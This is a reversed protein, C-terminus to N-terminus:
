QAFQEVKNWIFWRIPRHDRPDQFSKMEREDYAYGAAGFTGNNVVCVLNTIFERPTPIELGGDAIIANCKDKASAGIMGESTSNVYRGM